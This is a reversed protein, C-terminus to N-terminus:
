SPLAKLEWNKDKCFQLVRPLAYQMNRKAKESDHFVIISSPQINKLVNQLCIEPLIKQDFDGSLIDWMVIKHPPTAGMMKRAQKLSIRGYPPRFLTSDIWKEAEEIDKLYADINTKWGNLHHMTHNGVAHRQRIIEEFVAPYQQVNEGVCFFTAKAECAKLTELVWLTIEPHPGDDFTLYVVPKKEAPIRWIFQKPFLFPLWRPTKIWYPRM